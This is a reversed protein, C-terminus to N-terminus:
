GKFDCDANIETQNDIDWQQDGIDDESAVELCIVSNSMVRLNSIDYSVESFSYSGVNELYSISIHASYTYSFKARVIYFLFYNYGFCSFVFM